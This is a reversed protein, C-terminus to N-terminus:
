VKFSVAAFKQKGGKTCTTVFPGFGVNTIHEYFTPKSIDAIRGLEIWSKSHRFPGAAM